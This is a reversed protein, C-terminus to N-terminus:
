RGPREAALRAAVRCGAATAPVNQVRVGWAGSSTSADAFPCGDSFSDPTVNVIGM